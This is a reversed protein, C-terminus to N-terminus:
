LRLEKLCGRMDKGDRAKWPFRVYRTQSTLRDDAKAVIFVFKGRRNRTSFYCITEIVICFNDGWDRSPLNMLKEEDILSPPLRIPKLPKLM